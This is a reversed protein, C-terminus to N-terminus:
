GNVETSKHRNLNKPDNWYNKDGTEKIKGHFLEVPVQHTLRGMPNHGVDRVLKRRADIAKAYRREKRTAQAKTDGFATNETVRSKFPIEDQDRCGSTDINCGYLRLMPEGCGKCDPATPPHFPRADLTVGLGCEACKFPYIM